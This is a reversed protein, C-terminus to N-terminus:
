AAQAAVEQQVESSGATEADPTKTGVLEAWEKRTLRLKRAPSGERDFPYRRDSQFRYRCLIVEDADMSTCWWVQCERTRAMGALGDVDAEPACEILVGMGDGVRNDVLDYVLSLRDPERGFALAAIWPKIGTHAEWMRAYTGGSMCAQSYYMKDLPRFVGGSKEITYGRGSLKEADATDFRFRCRVAIAMAASMGSIRLRDGITNPMADRAAKIFALGPSM